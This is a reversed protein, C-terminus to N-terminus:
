EPNLRVFKQEIVGGNWQDVNKEGELVFGCSDYLSRAADLGKFTTLYVRCFNLQDCHNIARTILKRGLGQGASQPSVIFWRLHAGGVDAESADITISGLLRGDSSYVSLFLDNIQDMRGLFEAMEGAVKVEFQQGFNWYTHYYDVHM